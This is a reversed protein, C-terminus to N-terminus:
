AIKSLVQTRHAPCTELMKKVSLTDKLGTGTNILVVTDKPQLQQQSNAKYLGALAAASAPETLYGAQSYTKMAQLIELDSVQVFAGETEVVANMAKVRDKPLEAQLSDAITSVPRAPCDKLHNGNGWADALYNSGEAQVGFLKPMSDIWGLALLDKFGKHIGGIISGDGVGVFIADPTSWNMQECIEYAVTKKGETMYPNYATNRIYWNNKRATNLCEEFAEDYTGDVAVVHAGYARISLLKEAPTSAPVYVVAQLGFNACLCALAAAANGTSATAVTDFGRAKAQVVAMASARDKLSGSPLRSDDKIMVSRLNLADSLGRNETLPTGGVCIEPIEAGAPVPLLSRYRWMGVESSNTVDAKSVTSRLSAYEYDLDLFGDSPNCDCTYITTDSDYTSGCLVCKLKGIPVMGQTNM